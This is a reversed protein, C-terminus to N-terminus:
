EIKINKLVSEWCCRRSERVIIELRRSGKVLRGRREGFLFCVSVMRVKRDNNNLTFPRPVLHEKNERIKKEGNGSVVKSAPWAPPCGGPHGWRAPSMDLFFFFILVERFFLLHSFM